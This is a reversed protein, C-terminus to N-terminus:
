DRNFNRSSVQMKRRSKRLRAGERVLVKEARSKEKKEAKKAAVDDKGAKATTKKLAVVAPGAKTYDFDVFEIFAMETKDGPRRDLKIIRTFGGPRDKFRPSIDTIIKDAVAESALQSILTRRTNLSGDRGLTIAKEVHRRIEKAKIITTRIRGHEVLSEILGRFLAKRANFKRAFYKTRKRHRM